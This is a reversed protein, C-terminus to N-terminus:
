RVRRKMEDCAKDLVDDVSPSRPAAPKLAPKPLSLRPKIRSTLVQLRTLQRWM